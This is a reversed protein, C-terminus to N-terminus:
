KISFFCTKGGTFCALHEMKHEYSSESDNDNIDTLYFLGSPSSKHLLFDHLGDMAQDWMDRYLAESKGGSFKFRTLISTKQLFKCDTIKEGQLWIKLMYEYFSDGMAGFTIKNSGTRFAPAGENNVFIPYLGHHPAISKMLEFVKDAKSAYHDKGTAKALYRFEVQLTGLESLISNGGTWDVNFSINRNMNTVGYPIGSPSDFANLLRSGLDDARELFVEDGSLDYAALLGGLSRITTEFVSIDSDIDHSLHDRVWDRAEYFEKKMDMLWLTDLSDVLTVGMGGYTDRGTKMVPRLEDKGWAYKKYGNWAHRMAERIHERRERALEDDQLREVATLNRVINLGDTYNKYSPPYKVPKDLFLTKFGSLLTGTNANGSNSNKMATGSGDSSVASSSSFLKMQLHELVARAAYIAQEETVKTESENTVSSDVGKLLDSSDEERSHQPNWYFKLNGQGDTMLEGEHSKVLVTGGLSKVDIVDDEDVEASISLLLLILFLVHLLLIITYHM